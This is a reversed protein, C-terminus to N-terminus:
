LSVPPGRSTAVPPEAVRQSFLPESAREAPPVSLVLVIAGCDLAGLVTSAALHFECLATQPADGGQDHEHDHAAVHGVVDQLHWIQHTLAGQQVVLLLLICTLQLLSRM